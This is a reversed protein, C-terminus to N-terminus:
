GIVRFGDYTPAFNKSFYDKSDSCVAGVLVATKSGILKQPSIGADLIAEYTHELLMRMQPDTWEAHKGLMAFFPADFKEMQSIKGFRPPVKPYVNKWRDEKDCTMDVKNYLNSAFEEVNKSKPFRGGIGTIVVDNEEEM